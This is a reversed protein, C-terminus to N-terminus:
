LACVKSHHRLYLPNGSIYELFNEDMLVAKNRGHVYRNRM